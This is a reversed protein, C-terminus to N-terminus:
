FIFLFKGTLDFLNSFNIERPPILSDFYKSAESRTLDGIVKLRTPSGFNVDLWGLFFQDSSSLFFHVRQDEKTLNIMWKFLAKLAALNAENNEM